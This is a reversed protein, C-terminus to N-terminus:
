ELMKQQTSAEAYFNGIVRMMTSLMYFLNTKKSLIYVPLFQKIKLNKSNITNGSFSILCRIDREKEEM